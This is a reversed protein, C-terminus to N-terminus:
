PFNGQTEPILRKFRHLTTLGICDTVAHQVAAPIKARSQSERGCEGSFSGTSVYAQWNSTLDLGDITCRGRVDGSVKLPPWPLSPRKMGSSLFM